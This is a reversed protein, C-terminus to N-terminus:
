VLKQSEADRIAPAQVQTSLKIDPFIASDGLDVRM